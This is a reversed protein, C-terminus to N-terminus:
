DLVLTTETGFLSMESQSNEPINITISAAFPALLLSKQSTPSNMPTRVCHLMPGLRYMAVLRWPASFAATPAFTHFSLAQIFWHRDMFMLKINLYPFMLVDWQLQLPAVSLIKQFFPSLSIKAANHCGVCDM